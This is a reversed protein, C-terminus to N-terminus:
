RNFLIKTKRKIVDFPYKVIDRWFYWESGYYKFLIRWGQDTKYNGKKGKILMKITNGYILPWIDKKLWHILEQNPIYEEMITIYNQVFVVFYNYGGNRSYDKSDEFTRVNYVVNNHESNYASLYLPILTFWTGIYKEFKIEPVYKTNVINASIFTIYYSVYQTMEYKNDVYVIEKDLDHKQYIHLLGYEEPVDLLNVIRKLSDIIITDDDGLLWVYRGQAKRFCSVFNGDMGLNTENRIYRCVFGDAIADEVIQQTDDTSCNDSIIIEMRDLVDKPCSKLREIQEKM